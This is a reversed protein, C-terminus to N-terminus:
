HRDSPSPSYTSINRERPPLCMWRCTAGHNGSRAPRFAISLLRRTARSGLGGLIALVATIAALRTPDFASVRYPLGEVFRVTVALVIAGLVLGAGLLGFVEPRIMRLVQSQKAGLDM